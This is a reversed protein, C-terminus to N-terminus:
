LYTESDIPLDSNRSWENWSAFYNTVNNFGAEKLAIYVNSARAGKFCYVIINQDPTIGKTACLKLVDQPEKLYMLGDERKEMFDKWLIHVANPLRGKRPTFDVGYPSSSVGNWEEMDRVDLLVANKYKIAKMVDDKDSWLSSPSWKAKFTGIPVTPIEDTTPYGDKLWKDLGGNLVSVNTHGLLKLLYLGRCSAGYLTQLSSEYTVVHEEGGSIGAKQFINEFTEVLDTVGQADSTPALYTFISYCSVANPIHAKSYEDPHRVDLFKVREKPLANVQYPSIFTGAHRTATSSAAAVPFRLVITRTLLAMMLIYPPAIHTPTHGVRAGGM